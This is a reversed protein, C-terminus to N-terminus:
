TFHAIIQVVSILKKFNYDYNMTDDEYINRLSGLINKPLIFCFCFLVSKTIQNTQYTPQNILMAICTHM